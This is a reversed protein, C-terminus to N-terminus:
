YYRIARVEAGPTGVTTRKLGPPLGEDSTMDPLHWDGVYGGEFCDLVTPSDYADQLCLKGGQFNAVKISHVGADWRKPGACDALAFGSGPVVSSNCSQDSFNPSAYVTMDMPGPTYFAEITARRENFRRAADANEANGMPNQIHNVLPNSFLPLAGHSTKMQTHFRAAKDEYGYGYPPVSPSPSTWHHSAGLNHGLEHGLAGTCSVLSHTNGKVASVWALGCVDRAKSALVVFHASLADRIPRVVAGLPQATALDRLQMSSNKGTEDYDADYHGALTLQIDVESNAFYQNTNQLAQAMGLLWNPSQARMQDTSVMLVRLYSRATRPTTRAPAVQTTDQDAVLPEGDPPLKSEDVKILAHTTAAINDLEYLQGDVVIRGSLKEGQQALSLYYRPDYGNQGTADTLADPASSPVYGVVGTIGPYLTAYDRLQFTTSQGSPLTVVLERTHANVVDPAVDVLTIHTNAPDAALHALYDRATTELSQAAPAHQTTLLHQRTGPLAGSSLASATAMSAALPGLCLALLWPRYLANIM